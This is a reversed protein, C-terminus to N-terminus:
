NIQNRDTRSINKRKDFEYAGRFALSAYFIGAAYTSLNGQIERGLEVLNYDGTIQGVTAVAGGTLAATGSVIITATSFKRFLPM